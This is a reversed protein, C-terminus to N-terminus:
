VPVVDAQVVPCVRVELTLPTSHMASYASHLAFVSNDTPVDRFVVTNTDPVEIRVQKLMLRDALVRELELM